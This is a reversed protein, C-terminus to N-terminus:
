KTHQVALMMEPSCHYHSCRQEVVDLRCVLWCPCRYKCMDRICEVNQSVHLGESAYAPSDDNAVVSCPYHKMVM